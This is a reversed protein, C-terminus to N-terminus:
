TNKLQSLNQKKMFSVCVDDCTERIKEEQFENKINNIFLKYNGPFTQNKRIAITVSKVQHASLRSMLNLRLLELFKGDHVYKDETIGLNSYIISPSIIEIHVITM